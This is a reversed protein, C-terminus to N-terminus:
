VTLGGSTDITLWCPVIPSRLIIDGTAILVDIAFAADMYLQSPKLFEDVSMVRNSGRENMYQEFSAYKHIDGSDSM